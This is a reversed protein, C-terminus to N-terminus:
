GPEFGIAVLAEASHRLAGAFAKIAQPDRPDTWVAFDYQEDAVPLFGLGMAGAVPRIAM